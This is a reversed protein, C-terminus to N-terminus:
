TWQQLPSPLPFRRPWTKGNEDGFQLPRKMFLFPDKRKEM